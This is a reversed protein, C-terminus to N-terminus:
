EYPAFTAKSQRRRNLAALEDDAYADPGGAPLRARIFGIVLKRAARGAEVAREDGAEIAEDWLEFLAARRAAPETVRQWLLALNRQMIESTRRLQQERHAAGLQVREDRTSDLFALKKSAYPDQGKSRMFADTIDFGGGVIPVVVAKSRDGSDISGGAAKELTREGRQGDPGKDSYYWRSIGQGISRPTPLALKVQLNRRDKLDVTGDPAVKAVFVGQDSQRGGGPADRLQGSSPVPPAADTGRPVRDLADYSGTPLRLDVPGREASQGRRLDFWPSRPGPEASGASGTAAAAEAAAPATEVAPRTTASIAAPLPATPQQPPAAAPPPPLEPEHRPAAALPPPLPLEVEIPVIEVAVPPPRPEPRPAPEYAYVLAGLSAHAMVSIVVGLPLRRVLTHGLIWAFGNGPSVARAAAAFDRSV